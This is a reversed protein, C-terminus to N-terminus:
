KLVERGKLRVIEAFETEERQAVGPLDGIWLWYATEVVDIKQGRM